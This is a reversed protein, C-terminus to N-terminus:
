FNEKLWSGIRGLFGSGHAESGRASRPQQSEGELAFTLLGAGTAFAPGGTADALGHVRIPRGMRVQKDLVLGALERVGSLQSAGGTLVVRRGAIKDFGSSELRSRVLEFTEELRPQVIGILISRPIQNSIGTEEEGVQPVHIIEREDAPTAISNGYHTKIREAHALPTSLGSAIDNTVPGGGIPVSDTYVVHGDFFVALSTTGAGMDIVTVGLDMEDDVLSALGAAYPSVVIARPELHCRAVCTTLNKVAGAAATVVHMDVGLKEAFMGRPDRIGKSGDISYSVPISHILRRDVPGHVQAGQMLVRHLDHDAVERGSIPVEVGVTQSAPYGGSLNIVVEQITDGAMQEAAHVTTRLALEAQEMDIIAGNRVGRSIQHGIGAISPRGDEAVRAIFCCMKSTGIDLAAILGNRPAVRAKKIM